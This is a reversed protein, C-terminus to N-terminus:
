RGGAVKAPAPLLKDCAIVGDGVQDLDLLRAPRVREPETRVAAGAGSGAVPQPANARPPGPLPTPEAWTVVDNRVRQVADTGIWSGKVVAAIGRSGGLLPYRTGTVDDRTIRLLGESGGIIPSSYRNGDHLAFCVVDDGVTFSPVGSVRVSRDVLEGGAFVLEVTPEAKIGTRDFLRREIAFTVHTFAMDKAPVPENVVKTVHGVFALNAQKVLDQLDCHRQAAATAILSAVALATAWVRITRM